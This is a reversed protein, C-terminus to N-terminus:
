TGTTTAALLQDTLTALNFQYDRCGGHDFAQDNADDAQNGTADATFCCTPYVLATAFVFSGLHGDDLEGTADFVDGILQRSDTFVHTGIATLQEPADTTDLLADSPQLCGSLHTTVRSALVVAMTAMPTAAALSIM